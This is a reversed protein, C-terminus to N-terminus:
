MELRVFTFYEEKVIKRCVDDGKGTMSILWILSFSMVFSLIKTFYIYNKHQNMYWNSPPWDLLLVVISSIFVLVFVCCATLPWVYMYLVFLAFIYTLICLFHWLWSAFGQRSVLVFCVGFSVAVCSCLNVVVTSGLFLRLRSSSTCWLLCECICNLPCLSPWRFEKFAGYEEFISM